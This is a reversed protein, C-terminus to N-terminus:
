EEGRYEGLAKIANAYLEELRAGSQIAETKARLLKNEEQLKEMELQQKTSGLKLYHCIVASSATGDRMQKEACQVALAIMKNEEAEPSLAPWSAAQESAGSRTRAM